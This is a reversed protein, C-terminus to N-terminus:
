KKQQMRRMKRREQIMKTDEYMDEFAAKFAQDFSIASGGSEKVFKEADEKKAFAWKARKTMVGPKNGGLVWFAKEGEVLMRTNFDGVQMTKPIKDIHLAFDIAACHLSCTGQTSGDEYAVYVRSHAFKARDMGCYKCSPHKQVDEQAFLAIPLALLFLFLSPLVLVRKIRETEKSPFKRCDKKSGTM